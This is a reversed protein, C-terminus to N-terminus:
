FIKFDVRATSQDNKLRDVMSTAESNEAVAIREDPVGMSQLLQRIQQGLQCALESNIDQNRGDAFSEIQITKGQLGFEVAILLPNMDLANLRNNNFDFFLPALIIPGYETQEKLHNAVM